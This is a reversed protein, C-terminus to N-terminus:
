KFDYIFRTVQIDICKSKKLTLQQSKPYTKIEFVMFVSMNQRQHLLLKVIIECFIHIRMKLNQSIKRLDDNCLM